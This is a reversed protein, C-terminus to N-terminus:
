SVLSPTSSPSLIKVDELIYSIHRKVEDVVELARSYLDYQVIGEAYSKELQDLDVISYTGDAKITIDVYLDIYKIIGNPCIEVPTNVNVYIGKLRSMSSDFYMHVINWKESSLPVLTVMIDGVEKEVNLGDYVGSSRSVRKLLLAKGLFQSETVSDIYAPGIRIITGDPKVHKIFISNLRKISDLVLVEIGQRLQNLDVCCSIKDLAEVIDQGYDCAKLTHHLPTTDVVHRRVEDLFEKSYRSLHIVSIAEGESVIEGYPVSNAKEKIKMLEDLGKQLDESATELPVSRASSRWKVAIGQRIVNQSLMMLEARRGLDRIHESFIIRPNRSEFLVVTDKVVAIGPRVILKMEENPSVRLVHALIEEGERCNEYDVIKTYGYLTEGICEGNKVGLVRVKLTTYPGVNNYNIATFPIRSLAEIVAYEVADRYGIVIIQDKDEEGAKITAHPAEELRRDLSLRESLQKSVDVLEAGADMLLKAIATAYIGRVRYRYLNNVAICCQLLTM